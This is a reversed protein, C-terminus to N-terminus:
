ALGFFAWGNVSVEDNRVAHAVATMSPYTVGDYEFGDERVTVVHERGGYQKIIRHGIDLGRRREAPSFTQVYTKTQPIEHELDEAAKRGDPTIGFLTEGRGSDNDVDKEYLLMADVLPSLIPVFNISNGNFEREAIQIRNLGGRTRALLMLVRAQPGTLQIPM